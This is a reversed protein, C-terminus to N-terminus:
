ASPDVTLLGREKVFDALEGRSGLELKKFANSLHTSVTRPSIDLERAIAKNSKRESVLQAIELERETLGAAGGGSSKQPPRAGVERFMDRTKALEPQAGLRRFIDHVERLESLAEEPDGLEILRGARQRRLRAADFLMPIAELAEAASQLREAATELDGSHWVRIAEFARAWAHSLTNDAQRAHELMRELIHAGGKADDLQLYAEAVFPLLRHAAWIIFGSTEAIELGEEGVEIASRWEEEAVLQAVRGIYAPLVMHVRPVGDGGAGSLEWAEDVYAAGLELEGRSFYILSLWVLLRPLLEKQGLRRAQEISQEGLAIGDDWRGSAAAHEIAPESTWLELVPSGLEEAIASCADMHSNMDSANGLFGELVGLAWQVWYAVHLDGARHALEIAAAGHERAEDARGSWTHLIMLGRHARATLGPADVEDAVALAQEMHTAAEEARGLAQLAIGKRLLLHGERVRDEAARVHQLGEDYREIARTFRGQWYAGQGLRQLIAGARNADGDDVARALLEEWVAAAEEYRGIRQLARALGSAVEARLEPPETDPGMIEWARELFSVAEPNARTTLAELGARALVRVGEDSRDDARICHHAVEYVSARDSSALAQAMAAHLVRARALGLDDYVAERMAPHAFSYVIAAGSSREELIGQSVATDIADLLEQDPLGTVDRLTQFGAGSDSVAVTHVVPIAKEDLAAIRDSLIGRVTDPLSIKGVDWGVWAGARQHLVGRDVLSKLVEEVFLPNGGTRKLLRATFEGVTDASVSFVQELLAVCEDADLPTPELLSSDPM